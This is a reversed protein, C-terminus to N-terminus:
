RSAGPHRGSDEPCAGRAQLLAHGTGLREKQEVLVADSAAKVAEGVQGADRGIVVVLRAGVATAANIPYGILRRGCLEHLVKPRRSRMRVGEGAALIVATLASM